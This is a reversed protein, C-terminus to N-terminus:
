GFGHFTCKINVTHLGKHLNGQQAKVRGTKYILPRTSVSSSFKSLPMLFSPLTVGEVLRRLVLIVIYQDIQSLSASLPLFFSRHSVFM